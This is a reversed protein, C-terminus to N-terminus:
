RDGRYWDLLLRSALFGFTMGNGGYGLAFLHRRYRHHPGIYPLGDPTTAFLGEWRCDIEVDALAPYLEAFDNKVGRTGDEIAQQRQREPMAPRDRGGLMLRHDSTWRAYHYPRGTDWLMVAGPGIRRREAPTLPRTAVVYTNLMRFRAHLPKFSPSAYGTAIVVRDARICGRRLHLRVDSATARISQVPSREFVRAGTQQAARMLGVCAALPDVQANGRTRIAAAAGFHVARRLSAGKLWQVDLGAAVRRRYEDRLRRVAAADSAYYISDRRVLDCDIRLRTLTEIFDRTAQVSLRWIRRAKGPGYRRSLEALDTDPEQMLLATSAATSGRGVRSAEVLAVRAGDDAFRWALAAGTIGGGVIAIDVDLAGTLTPFRVHRAASDRGLWLPTNIRLRPM